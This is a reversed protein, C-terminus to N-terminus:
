YYINDIFLALRIKDSRTEKESQHLVEKQEPNGYKHHRKSHHHNRRSVVERELDAVMAWACSAVSCPRADRPRSSAAARRQLSSSWLCRPVDNGPLTSLFASGASRASSRGTSTRSNALLLHQAYWFHNGRHRPQRPRKLGTAKWRRRAFLVM